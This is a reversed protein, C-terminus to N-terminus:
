KCLRYCNHEELSWAYFSFFVRSIIVKRMNKVNKVIALELKRCLQAGDKDLHQRSSQEVEM